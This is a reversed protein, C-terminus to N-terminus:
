RIDSHMQNFLIKSQSIVTYLYIYKEEDHESKTKTFLKLFSKINTGVEFLACNKNSGKASVNLITVRVHYIHHELPHIIICSM